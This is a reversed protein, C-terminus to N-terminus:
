CHGPLVLIAVVDCTLNNNKYIVQHQSNCLLIGFNNEYPTLPNQIYSRPLFLVLLVAQIVRAQIKYSILPVQFRRTKPAQM